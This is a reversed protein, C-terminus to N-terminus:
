RRAPHRSTGMRAMNRRHKTRRPFRKLKCAMAEVQPEPGQLYTSERALDNADYHNFIVNRLRPTSKRQIKPGQTTRRIQEAGDQIVEFRYLFNGITQIAVGEFTNPRNKQKRDDRSDIIESDETAGMTYELLPWQNPIMANRGQSTTRKGLLM